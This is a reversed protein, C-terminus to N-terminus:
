REIPAENEDGVDMRVRTDRVYLAGGIGALSDPIFSAPNFGYLKLTAACYTSSLFVNAIPGAITYGKFQLFGLVAFLDNEMGKDVYDTILINGDAKIELSFTPNMNKDEGSEEEEIDTIEYCGEVFGLPPTKIYYGTVADLYIEQTSSASANLIGIVSVILLVFVKM